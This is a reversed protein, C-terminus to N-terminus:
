SRDRCPEHCPRCPSWAPMFHGLTYRIARRHSKINKGQGRNFTPQERRESPQSASLYHLKLAALAQRDLVLASIRRTILTHNTWRKKHLKMSTMSRSSSTLSPQRKRSVHMFRMESTGPSQGHSPFFSSARTDECDDCHCGSSQSM